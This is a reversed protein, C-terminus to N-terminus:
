PLAQLGDSVFLEYCTLKSSKFTLLQFKLKTLECVRKFCIYSVLGGKDNAQTQADKFVHGEILM